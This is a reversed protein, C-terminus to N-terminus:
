NDKKNEKEDLLNIAIGKDPMRVDDALRGAFPHTKKFVPSNLSEGFYFEHEDIYRFDPRVSGLYGFPPTINGLEAWMPPYFIRYHLISWLLVLSYESWSCAKSIMVDEKCDYFFVAFGQPSVLLSPIFSRKMGFKYHCLFSFVIATAYAQSFETSTGLLSWEKKIVRKSEVAVSLEPFNGALFNLIIIMMIYLTTHISTVVIPM